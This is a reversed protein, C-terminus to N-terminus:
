KGRKDVMQNIKQSELRLKEEDNMMGRETKMNDLLGKTKAIDEQQKQMEGQEGQQAAQAQMTNDIFEVFKDSGSIPASEVLTRIDVLAPNIQGIINTLALM